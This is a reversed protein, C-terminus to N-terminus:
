SCFCLFASAPTAALESRNIQPFTDGLGLSFINTYKRKYIVLLQLSLGPNTTQELVGINTLTHTAILHGVSSSDGESPRIDYDHPDARERARELM